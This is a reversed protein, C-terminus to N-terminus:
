NTLRKKFLFASTVGALIPALIYVLFWGHNPLNFVQKSWGGFYAIIRPSFDRAPNFGAQTYPAIILILGGLLFGILIPAINKSIRKSSTIYVIGTILLLTGIYEWFFAAGSNIEVLNSNAPNPYYEGFVMASLKSGEEGRVIGNTLEFAKISSNFLLFLTLGALGAGLFQGLILNFFTRLNIQKSLVSKVSVAPNLHAPCLKRVSFIGLIVALAWCSAVGFLDMSNFIVSLVVSGCGIFVLIFTGILEGTIQKM